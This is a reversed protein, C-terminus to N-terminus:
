DEDPDPLNNEIDQLASQLEVLANRAAVWKDKFPGEEIEDPDIDDLLMYELGEIELIEFVDEPTLKAM